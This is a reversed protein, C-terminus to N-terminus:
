GETFGPALLAVLAIVRQLEVDEVDVVHDALRYIAEREALLRRLEVLPDPACLLPRAVTSQGMRSLVVEPSARLYVMVSPPRLLGLAGPIAAWGGGPSLIMGDELALERTLQLELSRFAPEGRRRFIEAVSCGARAEIEADFDLFRRGCRRAVGRGVSTKGSGPLGVLILHPTSPPVPPPLPM